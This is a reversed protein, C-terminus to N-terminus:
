VNDTVMKGLPDKVGSEESFLSNLQEMSAQYKAREEELKKDQVAQFTLFDSKLSRMSQVLQVNAAAQTALQSQLDSQQSQLTQQGTSLETVMDRLSTVQGLIDLGQQRVLALMEQTAPDLITTSRDSASSVAVSSQSSSSSGNQSGLRGHPLPLSAMTSVTRRGGVETIRYGLREAINVLTAPMIRIGLYADYMIPCETWPHSHNCIACRSWQLEEPGPLKLPRNCQKSNHM